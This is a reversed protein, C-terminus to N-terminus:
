VREFCSKHRSMEIESTDGCWGEEEFDVELGM